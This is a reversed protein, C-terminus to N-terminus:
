NEYKYYIYNTPVFTTISKNTYVLTLKNKVIKQIESFYIFLSAKYIM